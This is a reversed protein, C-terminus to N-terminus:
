KEEELLHQVNVAIKTGQKLKTVKIESGHEKLIASAINLGLGSGTNSDKEKRKYPECYIDFEKQTMGIGNDEVVVFGDEYYVKIQAKDARNYLMGNRIFNDLATCFLSENIKITPLGVIEVIDHYATLELFKTFSEQFNVVEMDLYSNEKTLTTFAYVGKYVMQTHALGNELLKLATALKYQKIAEEPLRKKLMSLGRPIYTNIGSHMDHRIIKNSYELYVKKQFLQEKMKMKELVDHNISFSKKLWNDYAPNQGPGFVGKRYHTPMPEGDENNVFIETKFIEKVYLHSYEDELKSRLFGGVKCNDSYFFRPCGDLEIFSNPDDFDRPEWCISYWIGCTM